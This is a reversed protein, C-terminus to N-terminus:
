CNTQKKRQFNITKMSYIPWTFLDTIGTKNKPYWLQFYGVRTVKMWRSKQSSSPCLLCLKLHIYLGYIKSRFSYEPHKLKTIQMCKRWHRELPNKKQAKSKNAWGIKWYFTHFWDPVAPNSDPPSQPSIGEERVVLFIAKGRGGGGGGGTKQPNLFPFM